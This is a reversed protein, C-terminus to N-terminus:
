PRGDAIRQDVIQAQGIHGIVGREDYVLSRTTGIGSPRPRAESHMGIWEGIPLRTLYLTIDPNVYLWQRPDLVQSNGNAMDALTAVRQFPTMEHGDLLPVRLRFWSRGPAAELFSRGVTRVEVAHTHFRELDAPGGFHDVWDLPELSDPPPLTLPDEVTPVTELSTTRIKLATARGVELGGASLRAEVVQIRRGERIVETLITLPTLPVERFLDITFRVVQMPVSTPVQELARALIGSPPSGHQATDSWGGRCLGTPVIRGEDVTFLSHSM